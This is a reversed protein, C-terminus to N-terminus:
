FFLHFFANVRVKVRVLRLMISSALKALWFMSGEEQWAQKQKGVKCAQWAQWIAAISPETPQLRPYSPLRKLLRGIAPQQIRFEGDRALISHAVSSCPLIWKSPDLRYEYLIM